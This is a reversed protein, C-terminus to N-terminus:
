TMSGCNILAHKDYGINFLILYLSTISLVMFSLSLMASPFFVAVALNCADFAITSLQVGDM